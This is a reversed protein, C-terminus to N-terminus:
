RATIAFTVWLAAAGAIFCGLAMITIEIAFRGRDIIGGIAIKSVTNSAVATLIAIAVDRDDLPHPALKAAAVTVADADAVGVIAAGVIAGTGGLSEGAARGLLIVMGLFLAFGVVSWFAFPNRFKFNQGQWEDLQRWHTAISAYVMSAAAAALLPPAVFTLLRGNIVFIIACVRVFMVASAVGVGAALLRASGEHSAARHANTVTVATSSVLGGAAGALLIGHSVGFYKVAAYGLFSIAALVIAIAWVERPNVGGFPGIPDNPVIPLAIFTMALLVLASRLEPWTIKEVWGHIPERLALIVTATVAVAAASRMDGMASYSGLAFTLMTAVWTTASFDKEARNEELCFVAMGIGYSALGVGIAIGGGVGGLSQGIAGVVGGLMGSIAFTRIGAARGGPREERARWGRELGFLLGIGLALALRSILEQFDMAEYADISRALVRYRHRPPVPLRISLADSRFVGDLPPVRSERAIRADFISFQFESNGSFFDRIHGGL